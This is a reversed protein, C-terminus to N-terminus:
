NLFFCPKNGAAAATRSIASRAQRSASAGYVSKAKRASDSSVSATSASSAKRVNSLSSAKLSASGANAASVAADLSVQIGISCTSGTKNTTQCALLEGQLKQCNERLEGILESMKEIEVKLEEHEQRFHLFLDHFYCSFLYELSNKKESM